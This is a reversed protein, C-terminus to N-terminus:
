LPVPRWRMCPYMAVLASVFQRPAGEGQGVHRRVEQTMDEVSFVLRRRSCSESTQGPEVAGLTMTGSRVFYVLALDQRKYM